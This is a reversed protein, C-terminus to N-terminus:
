CLHSNSVYFLYFIKRKKFDVSKYAQLCVIVFNVSYVLLVNHAIFSKSVLNAKFAVILFLKFHDTKM